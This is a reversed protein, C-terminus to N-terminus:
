TVVKKAEDLYDKLTWGKVEKFEYGLKAYLRKAISLEIIGKGDGLIKSLGGQLIRIDVLDQKYGHKKEMYIFILKNMFPGLSELGEKVAEALLQNFVDPEVKEPIQLEEETIEINYVTKLDNELTKTVIVDRKASQELLYELFYGIPDTTKDGSKSFLKTLSIGEAKFEGRNGDIYYTTGEIIESDILGTSYIELVKELVVNGNEEDFKKLINLLIPELREDLNANELVHNSNKEGSKKDLQAVENSYSNSSNM